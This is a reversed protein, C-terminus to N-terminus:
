TKQMKQLIAGFIIFKLCFDGNEIFKKGIQCLKLLKLMFDLENNIESDIISRNKEM